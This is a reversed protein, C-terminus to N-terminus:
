DLSKTTESQRPCNTHVFFGDIAGVCEGLLGLTGASFSKSKAAFVDAIKKVEEEGSAWEVVGTTDHKTV